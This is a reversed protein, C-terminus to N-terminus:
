YIGQKKQSFLLQFPSLPLAWFNNIALSQLIFEPSNMLIQFGIKKKNSISYNCFSYIYM